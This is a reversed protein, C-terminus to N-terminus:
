PEVGKSVLCSRLEDMGRRMLHETKKPTWGLFGAAEPVSYGQLHCAVAARRPAGLTGLCSRIANFVSRSRLMQEPSPSRGPNEDLGPRDDEQTESRHYGRRMEDVVVSYAVKRLYSPHVAANGGSLDIRNVVRILATQVLDDAGSALWRPCSRRVARVLQGQLEQIAADDM